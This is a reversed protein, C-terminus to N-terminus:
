QSCIFRNKKVILLNSSKKNM